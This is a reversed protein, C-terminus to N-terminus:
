EQRKKFVMVTDNFWHCVGGVVSRAAESDGAMLDYGLGHIKDMVWLNSRCNVHGHGGQGPIAWSLILRKKAHKVINELAIDTFEAPIHEMVELCIANEHGGPLDFPETLDHVEVPTEFLDGLDEGEVAHVDLFGIDRFYKSYTGLGCGLDYVSENKPLYGAIWEALRYSFSHQGPVAAEEKTWTGTKTMTNTPVCALSKGKHLIAGAQEDCFFFKYGPNAKLITGIYRENNANSGYQDDILIVHDNRHGLIIEIEKALVNEQSFESNEGKEMLDDYGGTGKGCPHADLWFVAPGNVDELMEPLRDTSKGLFLEVGPLNGCCAVCREYYEPLYEVSKIRGFGADLAAKVREGSYTGTEIFIDSYKRFDAFDLLKNTVEAM